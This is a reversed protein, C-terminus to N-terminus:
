RGAVRRLTRDPRALSAVLGTELPNAAVIVIRIARTAEKAAFACPTYIAIIVDPKLDVLEAALAPLRNLKEEASRVDLILNQGEVYGTKALEGLLESRFSEVAANGVLLAGVRRAAPQQAGAWPPQCAMHRRRRKLYIPPAENSSRTPM